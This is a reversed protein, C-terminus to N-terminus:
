PNEDGSEVIFIIYSVKRVLSVTSNTWKIKSFYKVQQFAAPCPPIKITDQFGQLLVNLRSSACRNESIKTVM